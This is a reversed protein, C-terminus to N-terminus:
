LLEYNLVKCYSGCYPKNYTCVVIEQQNPDNTKNMNINGLIAFNVRIPFM